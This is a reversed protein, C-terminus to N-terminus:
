RELFQVQDFRASWDPTGGVSLRDFTILARIKGSKPNVYQAANAEVTVVSSADDLTADSVDIADFSGTVVNFLYVTRTVREADVGTELSLSIAEPNEVQSKTWCEMRVSPRPGPTAPVTLYVDDSEFVRQLGDDPSALAYLQLGRLHVNINVGVLSKRSPIGSAVVELDYLGTPVSAGVVFNTSVVANGTQVGMTSHDFTRAYYVQGNSRSTLRVLPYNTASYAEDGYSSGNTVGNLQKGSLTETAGRILESSLATITPRWANQYTSGNTYLYIGNNGNCWAVEGTPLVLMHGRYPVDNSGPPDITRVLTNTAARYEFFYTPSEFTGGNATVPGFCCLVDGNPLFAAPADEAGINRGGITPTNPGAAWSGPDSPLAGQTYLATRPTGGICFTRGDPMLIAAGTEYSQPLVLDVPTNGCNVWSNTGPNYKASGPHGVCHWKLATGEPLLIWTEETLQSNPAQPGATWTLTLPNLLATRRDFISGLFFRGDVLIVNPADGINSWGSPASIETWVNTQPNYVETKNTESGGDSYEGGAVIVRGDAFVGSAYYLRTWRTSAVQAITGNRYSGFADPTWAYWERDGERHIMVRGDTLQLM